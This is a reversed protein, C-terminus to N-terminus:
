KNSRKLENFSYTGKTGDDFEVFIYKPSNVEWVVDKFDYAIHVIKGKRPTRRLKVRDGVKLQNKTLHRKWVTEKFSPHSPDLAHTLHKIEDQNINRSVIRYTIM